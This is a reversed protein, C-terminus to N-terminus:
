KGFLSTFGSSALQPLARRVECAFWSSSFSGGTSDRGLIGSPHPDSRHASGCAGRGPQKMGYLPRRKEVWGNAYSPVVAILALSLGCSPFRASRGAARSAVCAARRALGAVEAASEPGTVITEVLPFLVRVVGARVSGVADIIGASRSGLLPRRLTGLRCFRPLPRACGHRYPASM